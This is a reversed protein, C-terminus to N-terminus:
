AGVIAQAAPTLAAEIRCISRRTAEDRLVYTGPSVQFPVSLWADAVPVEWATRLFLPVVGLRLYRISVTSPRGLRNRVRVRYRKYAEMRLTPAPGESLELGVIEPDDSVSTFSIGAAPLKARAGPASSRMFYYTDYDPKRSRHMLTADHVLGAQEIMPRFDGVDSGDFNEQILLSSGAHMHTAVKAYFRRHCEWGPDHHRLSGAYQDRFHPPNSVVLDWREGRPVGDLADSLYVSVRSGLHNRRITERVAEVALPNVDTLCLSECLGLGLLSFGIFGPGSCFEHVRGVKGFLEVVMPVYAQGFGMGGGELEPLYVTEIRGYRVTRYTL